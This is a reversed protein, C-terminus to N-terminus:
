HQGRVDCSLLKTYYPPLQHCEGDRNTAHAGTKKIHYFSKSVVPKVLNAIAKLTAYALSGTYDIIPRLPNGPLHIKPSGYLRPVLDSIPYLDHYQSGSIKNDDRQGTLLAVLTEKYGRTFDKRLKKYVREDSLMLRIKEM